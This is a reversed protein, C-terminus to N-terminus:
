EQRNERIVIGARFRLLTEHLRAFSDKGGESVLGRVTARHLYAERGLEGGAKVPPHGERLAVEVVGVVAAAGVPDLALDALIHEQRGDAPGIGIVLVLVRLCSHGVDVVPADGPFADGVVRGESAAVVRLHDPMGQGLFVGELGVSGRASRARLMVGLGFADDTLELGVVPDDAHRHRRDELRGPGEATQFSSEGIEDLVRFAGVPEEVDGAVIVKFRRALERLQADVHDPDPVPDARLVGQDGRRVHPVTEEVV